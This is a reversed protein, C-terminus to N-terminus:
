QARANIMFMDYTKHVNHEPKFEQANYTFVDKKIVLLSM